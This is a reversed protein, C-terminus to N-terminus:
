RARTGGAHGRQAAPPSPERAGSTSCAAVARAVARRGGLGLRGLARVEKSDRRLADERRQSSGLALDTKARLHQALRLSLRDQERLGALTHRLEELQREVWLHGAASPDPAAM